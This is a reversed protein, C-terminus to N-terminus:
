LHLFGLDGAEEVFGSVCNAVHDGIRLRFVARDHIREQIIILSRAPCFGYRGILQNLKHALIPQRALPDDVCVDVSVM